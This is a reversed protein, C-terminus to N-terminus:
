RKRLMGLVNYVGAFPALLGRAAFFLKNLLRPGPLRDALNPYGMTELRLIDLGFDGALHRVTAPALYQLHELDVRFPICRPDDKVAAGNPTWLLLVGGPALLDCARALWARPDLPHEIIDQLIIVDYPGDLPTALFDGQRVDTFGYRERLLAVATPDADIGAVQAGWRACQRLTTGVGCGVDLVRTGRLPVAAALLRMRVDTWPLRALAERLPDAIAAARVYHGDYYAAYLADLDDGCPAPTVFYAGCCPCAHITLGDPRVCYPTGPDGCFPCPRACLRERSWQPLRPDLPPLVPPATM